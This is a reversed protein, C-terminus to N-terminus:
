EYVHGGLEVFGPQHRMRPDHHTWHLVPGYENFDLEGKVIVRDGPRLPAATAISINDAVFVDVTQKGDSISIVFHEHAGAPGASSPLIRTVPGTVVIETGADRASIARLAAANDPPPPALSCAGFLTTCAFALALVAGRTVRM